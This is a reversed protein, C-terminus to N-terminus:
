EKEKPQKILQHVFVSGGTVLIGQVLSDANLGWFAFSLAVGIVLLIYPIYWDKVNPTNKIIKGLILLVPILILAEEIVYEM